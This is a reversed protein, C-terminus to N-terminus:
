YEDHKELNKQKHFGPGTWFKLCGGPYYREQCEVSRSSGTVARVSSVFSDFVKLFEPPEAVSFHAKGYIM